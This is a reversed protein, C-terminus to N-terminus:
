GADAAEAASEDLIKQILTNIQNAARHIMKLSSGSDEPPLRSILIDAAMSIAAAPNRLDHGVSSLMRERTHVSRRLRRQLWLRDLLLAARRAMAEALALEDEGLDEREATSALALVAVGGRLRFPVAAVSRVDLGRVVEAVQPAGTAAAAAGPTLGGLVVPRELRLVARDGVPPEDFGLTPLLLEHAQLSRELTPDRHARATVTGDREIVRVIALDAVGPVAAEVLGRAVEEVSEAAGLRELHELAQRRGVAHARAAQDDVTLVAGAPSGDAAAIPEVRLSMRRDVPGCALRLDRRDIQGGGQLVSEVDERLSWGRAGRLSSVQEVPRGVLEARRRALLAEAQASVYSVRGLGDLAIVAPPPLEALAAEITRPERTLDVLLACRAAADTAGRTLAPSVEVRSM